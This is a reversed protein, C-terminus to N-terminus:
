SLRQLAIQVRWPKGEPIHSFQCIPSLYILQQKDEMNGM